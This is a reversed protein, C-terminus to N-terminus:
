HKSRNSDPLGAPKIRAFPPKYKPVPKKKTPKVPEEDKIPKPKRNREGKILANIGRKTYKDSHKLFLHENLKDVFRFQM